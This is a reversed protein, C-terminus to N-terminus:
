GGHTPARAIDASTAATATEYAKLFLRDSTIFYGRRANEADTEDSLVVALTALVEQAHEVWVGAGILSQSNHYSVAGIALLLALAACLAIQLKWHLLFKTKM